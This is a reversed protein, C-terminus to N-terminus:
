STLELCIKQLALELEEFHCCARSQYCELLLAVRDHSIQTTLQEELCLYILQQLRILTDCEDGARIALSSLTLRKETM